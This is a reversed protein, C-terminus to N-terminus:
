YIPLLEQELPKYHSIRDMWWKETAGKFFSFESINRKNTLCRYEGDEKPLDEESEIKVWGNNNRIGTISKPWWSGNLNDWFVNGFINQYKDPCMAKCVEGNDNIFPELYEYHEGYANRIVEQKADM